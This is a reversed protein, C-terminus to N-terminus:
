RLRQWTIRRHSFEGTFPDNSPLTSLRLQDGQLNVMRTQTQGSWSEISSIEIHHLVRDAQVSYRGPYSMMTRFLAVAEADTAVAGVPPQRSGETILVSMRGDPLYHIFGRTGERFTNIIQHSPLLERETSVISWTGILPNSTADM